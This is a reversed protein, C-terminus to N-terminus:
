DPDRPPLALVQDMERTPARPRQQRTGITKTVVAGEGFKLGGDQQATGKGIANSSNTGLEPM